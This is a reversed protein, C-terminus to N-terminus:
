MADLGLLGFDSCDGGMIQQCYFTHSLPPGCDSGQVAVLLSRNHKNAVSTELEYGEEEV